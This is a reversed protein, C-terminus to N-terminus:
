YRYLEIHDNGFVVALIKRDEYYRLRRISSKSKLETEKIVKMNRYDFEIVKRCRRLKHNCTVILVTNDPGKCFDTSCYGDPIVIGKKVFKKHHPYFRDMPITKINNDISIKKLVNYNRFGIIFDKDSLKVLASDNWFNDVGPSVSIEGKIYKCHKGKSDLVAILKSSKKLTTNSVIFYNGLQILDSPSDIKGVQVTRMFKKNRFVSIRGNDTDAIWLEGSNTFCMTSPRYLKGAEEGIDAFSGLMKGKDSFIVVRGNGSDLLYVRNDMLAIDRVKYLGNIDDSKISLLKEAKGAGSVMLAMILLLNVM